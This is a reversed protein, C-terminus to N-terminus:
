LSVYRITILDDCSTCAGSKADLDIDKLEITYKKSATTQITVESRLYTVEVVSENISFLRVIIYIYKDSKIVKYSGQGIALLMDDTNVIHDVDDLNVDVNSYDLAVDDVKPKIQIPVATPIEFTGDAGLELIEDDSMIESQHVRFNTLNNTTLPLVTSYLRLVTCQVRTIKAIKM